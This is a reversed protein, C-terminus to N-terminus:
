ALILWEPGGTRTGVLVRAAVVSRGAATTV